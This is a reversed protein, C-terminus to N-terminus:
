ENGNEKGNTNVMDSYKNGIEDPFENSDFETKEVVPLAEFKTKDDM